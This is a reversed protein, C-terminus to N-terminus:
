TTAPPWYKSGAYSYKVPGEPSGLSGSSVRATGFRLATPSTPERRRREFCDKPPERNLASRESYAAHTARSASIAASISRESADIADQSATKRTRWPRTACSSSRRSDVTRRSSACVSRTSRCACAISDSATNSASRCSASLSSATALAAIALHSFSRSAAKPM